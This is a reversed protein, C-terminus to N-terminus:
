GSLSGARQKLWEEGVSSWLEGPTMLEKWRGFEPHDSFRACLTEGEDSLTTVFVEDYALHDLLYPSHSTAIVQLDPSQELLGRLVTVLDRQALPHLCRDLDDLLVLRPQGPGLLVTLLGLALLAGESMAHAPVEDAGRVDFVLEDGWAPGTSFEGLEAPVSRRARRVRVAQVSPVITTLAEVLERHRGPQNQALFGVVTALGSGNERLSPEVEDLYSVRALVAPDLRLLTARAISEGVERRQDWLLFNSDETTESSGGLSVTLRRKFREYVSHPPPVPRSEERVIETRLSGSVGSWQGGIEVALSSSGRRLLDRCEDDRVLDGLQVTGLRAVLRLAQLASTKGSGNPGVLVTLKGLGDLRVDRLAKFNTFEAREIM